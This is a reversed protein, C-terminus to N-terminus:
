LVELLKDNRYSTHLSTFRFDSYLCTMSSVAEPTWLPPERERGSRSGEPSIVNTGIKGRQTRWVASRVLSQLLPSFVDVYIIFLLRSKCNPTAQAGVARSGGAGDRQVDTYPKPDSLSRPDSIGKM